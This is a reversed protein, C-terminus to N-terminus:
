GRGTRDSRVGLSLLDRMNRSFLPRASTEATAARPSMPAPAATAAPCPPEFVDSTAVVVVDVVVVGDLEFWQGCL